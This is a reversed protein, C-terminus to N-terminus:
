PFRERRLPHQPPQRITFFYCVQTDGHLAHTHLLRPCGERPPASATCPRAPSLCPCIFESEPHFVRLGTRLSHIRRQFIAFDAQASQDPPPSHRAPHHTKSTFGRATQSAKRPRQPPKLREREIRAVPCVSREFDVGEGVCNTPSPPHAKRVRTLAWGALVSEAFECATTRAYRGRVLRRKASRRGCRDAGGCRGPIGEKERRPFAM